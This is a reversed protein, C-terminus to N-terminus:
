RGPVWRMGGRAPSCLQFTVQVYGQGGSAEWQVWNIKNTANRVIHLMDIYHDICGCINYLYM